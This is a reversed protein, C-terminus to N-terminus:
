DYPYEQIQLDAPFRRIDTCVKGDVEMQKLFFAIGRERCQDRMSRAWALDMPRRDKKSECGMVVWSPQPGADPLRLPGLAPEYSIWPVATPVAALFPWRQDFRPQNGASVGLWIWPPLSADRHAFYVPVRAERKTLIQFRHRRLETMTALMQDLVEAALEHHFFDSMSNVFVRQPTKWGYPIALREPLFRVKGTWNVRGNIIATLGEYAAAVKPNPNHALRWADYMAYCFNCEEDVKDCGLVPNWTRQTWSIKTRDSAM